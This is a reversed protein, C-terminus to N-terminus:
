ARGNKNKMLHFFTKKKKKSQVSLSHKKSLIQSQPRKKTRPSPLFVQSKPLIISTLMNNKKNFIRHYLGLFCFLFLLLSRKTIKFFNRQGKNTKKKQKQKTNHLKTRDEQPLHTVKKGPM